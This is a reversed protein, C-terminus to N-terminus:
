FLGCPSERASGYRYATARALWRHDTRSGSCFSKPGTLLFDNGDQKLVMARGPRESAWVGYLVDAIITKGAEALIATADWHAEALRALSIDERAVNMLQLHRTATEGSGPFPLMPGTIMARLHEELEERLM